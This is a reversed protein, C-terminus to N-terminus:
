RWADEFQVYEICLMLATPVNVSVGESRKILAWDFNSQYDLFRGRAPRKKTARGSRRSFM